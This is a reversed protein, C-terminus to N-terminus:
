GQYFTYIVRDIDGSSDYEYSKVYEGEPINSFDFEHYNFDAKSIIMNNIRIDYDLENLLGTIIEAYSVKDEKMVDLYQEYLIDRKSIDTKATYIVSNLTRYQYLLYFGALCFMIMFAATRLFATVNEM